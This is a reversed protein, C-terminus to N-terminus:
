VTDMFTTPRWINTYPLPIMPVINHTQMSVYKIGSAGGKFGGGPGLEVQLHHGREPVPPFKSLMPSYEALFPTPIM